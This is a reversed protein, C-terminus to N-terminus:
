AEAGRVASEAQEVDMGVVATTMWCDRYPAESQRELVWLYGFVQGDSTEVLVPLAVQSGETTMPGMQAVRHGLLPAYGPGRVMRVFRPLPGTQARNAPAAFRFVAEIGADNPLEPNRRLSELQLEVVDMPSLEPSPGREVSWPVTLATSVAWMWPNM